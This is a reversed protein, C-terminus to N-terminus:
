RTRVLPEMHKRSFETVQAVKDEALQHSYSGRIGVSKYHVQLM